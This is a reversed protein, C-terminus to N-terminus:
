RQRQIHWSTLASPEDLLLFTDVDEAFMRRNLESVRSYKHIQQESDRTMTQCGGLFAGVGALIVPVLVRFM